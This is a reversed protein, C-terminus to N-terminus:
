MDLLIAMLVFLCFFYKKKKKSLLSLMELLEVLVLIHGESDVGGVLYNEKM